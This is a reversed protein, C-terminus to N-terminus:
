PRLPRIEGSIETVVPYGEIERPIQRETEPSPRALMVTLCASKGDPLRGVYVGVVEPLKLLQQDHAALVANIDRKPAPNEAMVEASGLAVIIVGCLRWTDM